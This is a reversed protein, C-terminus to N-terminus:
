GIAYLNESIKCIMSTLSIPRYNERLHKSGKKHLPVIDASRWDDPLHALQFSKNVLFSISPALEFLLLQHFIKHKTWWCPPWLAVHFGGLSFM